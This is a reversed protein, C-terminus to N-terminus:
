LFSRWDKGITNDLSLTMKLIPQYEFDISFAPINASGYVLIMDKLTDVFSDFLWKAQTPKRHHRYMVEHVYGGYPENYAIEAGNSTISMAGSAKLAGTEVPVLLQAKIYTSLAIQQIIIMKDADTLFEDVFRKYKIQKIAQETLSSIDVKVQM